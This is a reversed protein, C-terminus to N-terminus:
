KRGFLYGRAPVRGAFFADMFEAHEADSRRNTEVSVWGSYGNREISQRIAHYDISGLGLPADRKTGGPLAEHDKVHLRITEDPMMDLWQEPPCFLVNNGLDLYFKVYPSKFHKVLARAFAPKAWFWHGGVNELALTVGQEAALPVLERVARKACETANNQEAIYDAYPTNDGRVCRTMRLTAPDFEPEYEAPPPGKVGQKVVKYPVMLMVDAGYAAALRISHRALEMEGAYREPSNFMFWGGMFSHIRIGNAEALVRAARAEEVTAKRDSLEVGDYGNDKLRALVTADLRPAILAKKLVTAYRGADAAWSASVAAAFACALMFVRHKLM